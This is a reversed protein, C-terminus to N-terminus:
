QWISIQLLFGKKSSIYAICSPNIRWALVKRTYSNTVKILSPNHSDISYNITLIWSWIGTVLLKWGVSVWGVAEDWLQKNDRWVLKHLALLCGHVGRRWLYSMHHQTAQRWVSMQCCRFTTHVTGIPSHWWFSKTSSCDFLFPEM